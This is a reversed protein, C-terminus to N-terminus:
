LAALNPATVRFATPAQFRMQTPAVPGGGAFAVDLIEGGSFLRGPGPPPTSLYIGTDAEFALSMPSLAGGGGTVLIPGADIFDLQTTAACHDGDCVTGTPCAVHCPGAASVVCSGVTATLQPRPVLASEANDRAVTHAPDLFAAWAHTWDPFE